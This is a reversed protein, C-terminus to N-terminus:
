EHINSLYARVAQYEVPLATLIVARGQHLTSGSM